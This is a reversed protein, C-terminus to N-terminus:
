GMILRGGQNKYGAAHNYIAEKLLGINEIHNKLGVPLVEMIQLTRNYSAALIGVRQLLEDTEGREEDPIEDLHTGIIIVRSAPARFALDSLWPRLEEVGKDGHKLNFLLLYLTNHSLFCQYTAYYEEEGAFDWISFHFVRRGISPSYQWDSIDVGPTSEDDYEKGLLQAVLTTKGRNAYGLIMLKMRYHTIGCRLKSKLYDICDHCERQFEKPPEKLNRLGDLNLHSLCWLRGMELPLAVINSNGSLILTHLTAFSCICLPVAHFKNSAINLSHIAPAIINLPLSSLQNNSLDLVKLNPSWKPVEPLEQLKNHALNLEGLSPLELLCKPVIALDNYQLDIKVM